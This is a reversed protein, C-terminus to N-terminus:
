GLKKLWNGYKVTNSNSLEMELLCLMYVIVSMTIFCYGFYKKEGLKSIVKSTSERASFVIM